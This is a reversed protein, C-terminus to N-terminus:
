SGLVKVGKQAATPNLPAGPEEVVTKKDAM